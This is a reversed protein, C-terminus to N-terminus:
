DFTADPDDFSMNEMKQTGGYEIYRDISRIDLLRVYEKFPIFSTHIMVSRDYLEDRNAMAFGLSDTGSVVIKIRMMSFVDHYAEVQKYIAHYKATNAKDANNEYNQYNRTSMGLYKACESQNM